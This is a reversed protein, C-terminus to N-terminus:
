IQCYRKAEDLATYNCIALSENPDGLHPEDNYLCWNIANLMNTKGIGNPAVIVHLDTEKDAPFSINLSRYQRYNSINISEIRMALGGMERELM